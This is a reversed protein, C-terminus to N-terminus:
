LYSAQIPEYVKEKVWAAALFNLFNRQFHKMHNAESLIPM